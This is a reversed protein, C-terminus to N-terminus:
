MKASAEGAHRQRGSRYLTPERDCPAPRHLVEPRARQLCAKRLRHHRSERVPQLAKGTHIDAFMAYSDKVLHDVKNSASVARQRFPM